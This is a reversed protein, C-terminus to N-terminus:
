TQKESSKSVCYFGEFVTNEKKWLIIVSILFLPWFSRQKKSQLKLSFLGGVSDTSYFIKLIFTGGESLISVPQCGYWSVSPPLTTFSMLLKDCEFHLHWYWITNDNDVFIFMYWYFYNGYWSTPANHYPLKTKIRTCLVM